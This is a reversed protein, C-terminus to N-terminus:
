GPTTTGVWFALLASHLRSGEVQLLRPRLRNPAGTSLRRPDFIVPADCPECLWSCRCTWPAFGPSPRRGGPIVPPKPPDGGPGQPSPRPIFPPAGGFHRSSWLRWNGECSALGLPDTTLTPQQQAYGFVAPLSGRQGSTAAVIAAVLLDAHAPDSRGYRGTGHEYWRHVNYYIGVGATPNQWLPDDWQGPLRLFVDSSQAQQFFDKGFPEFPGAWLDNGTADTALLPAGLHDTTLFMWESAGDLEKVRAVPRGAFYFLSFDTTRPETDGEENIVVFNVRTLGHLLGESSYV